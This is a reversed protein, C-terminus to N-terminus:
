LLFTAWIDPLSLKLNHYMVIDIVQKSPFTCVQIEQPLNSFDYPHDATVFTEHCRSYPSEDYM